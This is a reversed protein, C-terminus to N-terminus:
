GVALYDAILATSSPFYLTNQFPKLVDTGGQCFAQGGILVPLQSYTQNLVSLTRQLSALNFFLSVSLGLVDPKETDIRGLLDLEPVNAGLFLSDWGHMEFVDAIIKAGLTHQEQAVCALVITKGVRQTLFLEPYIHHLLLESISTALHERAVSIQHHEWMDGVQYLSRKILSEYIDLVAIKSDLLETLINQCLLRNGALLAELYVPYKQTILDSM